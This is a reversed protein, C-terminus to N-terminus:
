LLLFSMVGQAYGMTDVAQWDIQRPLSVPEGWLSRRLLLLLVQQEFSFFNM